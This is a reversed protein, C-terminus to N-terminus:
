ESKGLVAAMTKAASDFSYHKQYADINQAVASQRTEDDYGAIVAFARLFDEESECLFLGRSSDLAEEYGVFTERSGCVLLGAGLASAVKVKMGAGAESPCVLVDGARAFEDMSGFNFHTSLGPVGQCAEIVEPLPKSGAVALEGFRDQKRFLSICQFVSEVNPRYNLSGSYILRPARDLPPLPKEEVCVPMLAYEGDFGYLERIRCHDRKSLFLSLNSHRLCLKEDRRTCRVELKGFLSSGYCAFAYDTEVNDFHTIIRVSPNQKRLMKALFGLRSSALVVVDPKFTAAHRLIAKRHCYLFSSHGFCRAFLDQWRTKNFRLDSLSEDLSIVSLRDGEVLNREIAVKLKRHGLPGGGRGLINQTSILLVNM